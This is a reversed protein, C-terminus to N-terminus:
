PLHLKLAIKMEVLQMINKAQMKKMMRARHLEVTSLGLNLKDSIQKNLKGETVLTM